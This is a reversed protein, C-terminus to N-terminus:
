PKRLLIASGMGGAAPILALGLSGSPEHQLRYFLNGVLIAGSAGIPHGRSLLGGYSNVQADSFGLARQNHIAQAAFSEMIEVCSIKARASRSLNALIKQAAIVGALAPHVSSGAAQAGAVIEIPTCEDHLWRRQKLAPQNVIRLAAAADARPAVTVATIAMDPHNRGLPLLPPLRACVVPTLARVYPDVGGSLATTTAVAKAHSACAYTEQAVRTIKHDIAFQQAAVLVNPDRDATPAFQAQDFPVLGHATKRSRVPAMSFSEAGGAVVAVAQAVRQVRDAALMVADMGSCCQTDITLAPVGEGFTTITAVRAPNGGAGLANGLIVLDPKGTSSWVRRLASAALEHLATEKFLGGQPAILTRAAATIYANM